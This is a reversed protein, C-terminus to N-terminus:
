APRHIWLTEVYPDVDAFSGPGSKDVVKVDVDHGAPVAVCIEHRHHCLHARDWLVQPICIVCQFRNKSLHFAVRERTLQWWVPAESGALMPYSACHRGDRDLAFLEMVVYM